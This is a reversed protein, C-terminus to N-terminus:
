NTTSSLHIIIIEPEITSVEPIPRAPRAPPVERACSCSLIALIVLSRIM